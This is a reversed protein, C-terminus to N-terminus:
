ATASLCSYTSPPRKARPVDPQEADPCLARRRANRYPRANRRRGLLRRPNRGPIDRGLSLALTRQLKM